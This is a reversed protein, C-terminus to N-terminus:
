VLFGRESCGSHCCALAKKKLQNLHIYLVIGRTHYHLIDYNGGNM